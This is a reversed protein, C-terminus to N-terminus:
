TSLKALHMVAKGEESLHHGMSQPASEDELDQAKDEYDRTTNDGCICTLPHCDRGSSGAAEHACGRNGPDSM